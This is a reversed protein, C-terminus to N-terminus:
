NLTLFPDGVVIFGLIRSVDGISKKQNKLEDIIRRASSGNVGYYYGENALASLSGSKKSFIYSIVPSHETFVHGIDSSIAIVFKSKPEAREIFNYDVCASACPYHVQRSGHANIFLLEYKNEYLNSYYNKQWRQAESSNSYRTIGSVLDVKFNLKEFDTPFLTKESEVYADALLVKSGPYVVRGEYFDNLRSFYASITTDQPKIVSLTVEVSNLEADQYWEGKAFKSLSSYFGMLKQGSNVDKLAPIDYGIFVVHKLNSSNYVSKLYTRVDEASSGQLVKYMKLNINKNKKNVAAMWKDILPMSKSEVDYNVVVLADESYKPATRIKKCGFFGTSKFDNIGSMCIEYETDPKLNAIVRKYVNKGIPMRVTDSFGRVKNDGAYYNVGNEKTIIYGLQTNPVNVQSLDLSVVLSSDEHYKYLDLSFIGESYEASVTCDSKLSDVVYVDGDIHGGCGSIKYEGVGTNQAIDFTLRGGYEISQSMPTIIIGGDPVSVMATHIKIKFTASIKCASTIISTTYINDSLQGNCGEVNDIDYGEAVAINVVATRGHQVLQS